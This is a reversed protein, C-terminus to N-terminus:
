LPHRSIIAALSLPQEPSACAKRLPKAQCNVFSMNESASELVHEVFEVSCLLGPRGRGNKLVVPNLSASKVFRCLRFGCLSVWEHPARAAMVDGSERNDDDDNHLLLM